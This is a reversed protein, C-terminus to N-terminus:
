EAKTIGIQIGNSSSGARNKMIKSVIISKQKITSIM